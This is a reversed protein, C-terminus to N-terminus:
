AQDGNSTTQTEPHEGIFSEYIELQRIINRLVRPTVEGEIELIFRGTKSTPGIFQRPM